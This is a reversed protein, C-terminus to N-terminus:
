SVKLKTPKEGEAPPTDKLEQIFEMFETMAKLAFLLL